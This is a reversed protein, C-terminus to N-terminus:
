FRVLQPCAPLPSADGFTISYCPERLKSIPSFRTFSTDVSAVGNMSDMFRKQLEIGLPDTLEKNSTYSLIMKNNVEKATLHRSVSITPEFDLWFKSVFVLNADPEQRARNYITELKTNFSNTNAVVKSGQMIILNYQSRVILVIMFTGILVYLAPTVLKKSWHSFIQNIVYYLAILDAVRFLMMVPFDYRMLTPIQNPYFIYQSAIIGYIITMSLLTPIIAKDNPKKIFGIIMAIYTAVSVWMKRESIIKPIDWVFRTVRYRYSITEGYIDAGARGTAVLIASVVWITFGIALISAAWLSKTMKHERMMQWVWLLLLPLLFLFNEKAGVALVYSILLIWPKKFVYGYAFGLLAPVGYIESPGLRTLLDPWFPMTLVYFIFLYSLIKPFYKSMIRFAMWMSLVLLVYRAVFWMTANDRWLMTEIVRLMYYSPRFRLYEGWAGIETMGIVKPLETLTIVGDSGLFYPIEHDDIMGLKASFLGGMLYYGFVAFVVIPLLKAM